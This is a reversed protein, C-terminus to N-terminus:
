TTRRTRQTTPSDEAVDDGVALKLRQGSEVETDGDHVPTMPEVYPRASMAILESLLESVKRAVVLDDAAILAGVHRSLDELLAKRADSVPPSPEMTGRGFRLWDVSVRAVEALKAAADEPLTYSPEDASRNRQVALYRESLGAELSWARASIGRVRCVEDFRNGLPSPRKDSVDM